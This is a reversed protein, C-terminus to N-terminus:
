EGVVSLLQEHTLRRALALQDTEDSLSLSEVRLRRASVVQELAPRMRSPFSLIKRLFHLEVRDGAPHVRVVGYRRELLTRPTLPPVERAAVDARGTAEDVALRSALPRLDLGRMREAVAAILADRQAQTRADPGDGGFLAPCTERFATEKVCERMAARFLVEVVEAWVPPYLGFVLHLSPVDLGHVEHVHGRPLYLSDGARLTVDLTPEGRAFGTYRDSIMWPRTDLPADILPAWLKWRKEGHLQVVFVDHTDWHPPYDRAGPASYIANCGTLSATLEGLASAAEAISACHEQLSRAHISGHAAALYADLGPRTLLAPDDFVAATRGYGRRFVLLDRAIRGEVIDAVLRDVGYIAAHPRPGEGRRVLLPRRGLHHQVFTDPSIPHLLSEACANEAAPASLARWADDLRAADVPSRRTEFGRLPDADKDLARVGVGDSDLAPDAPAALATTQAPM